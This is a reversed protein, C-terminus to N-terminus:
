DPTGATTSTSSAPTPCTFGEAPDPPHLSARCWADSLASPPTTGEMPFALNWADTPSECVTGGPIALLVAPDVDLVRHATYGAGTAYVKEDVAAPDLFGCSLSYFTGGIVFGAECSANPPCPPPPEILVEAGEPADTPSAPTEPAPAASPADQRVGCAVATMLLVLLAATGARAAHPRLLM